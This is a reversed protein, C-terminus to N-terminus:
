NIEIIIEFEKKCKECYIYVFQQYEGNGCRAESIHNLKIHPCLELSEKEVGNIRYCVM